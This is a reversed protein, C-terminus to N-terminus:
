LASSILKNRSIDENIQEIIQSAKRSGNGANDTEVYPNHVVSADGDIVKHAEIINKANTKATEIAHEIQNPLKFFINTQHKTGNDNAIGLSKYQMEQVKARGMAWKYLNDATKAEPLLKRYTEEAQKLDSLERRKLEAVEQKNDQVVEEALKDSITKQHELRMLSWKERSAIESLQSPSMDYKKALERLDVDRSLFETFIRYINKQAEIQAPTMSPM